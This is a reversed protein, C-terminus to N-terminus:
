WGRRHWPSLKLLIPTTSVAQVQELNPSEIAETTVNRLDMLPIKTQRKKKTKAAAKLDKTKKNHAQQTTICRRSMFPTVDTLILTSMLKVNRAAFFQSTSPTGGRTSLFPVVGACLRRM